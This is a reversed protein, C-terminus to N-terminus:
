SWTQECRWWEAARLAEAFWTQYVGLHYKSREVAATGLDRSDWDTAALLRFIRGVDAMRRIDELGLHPWSRHVVSWYTTLDPSVSKCLFQMLDIAPIGWGATEWDIVLLDTTGLGARVRVNKTVFDGHILTRPMTACWHEVQGWCGELLDCHAILKRLMQRDTAALARRGINARVNDRASRLHDRYHDPGREPLRVSAALRAASTHLVGLWQAAVQRHKPLDPSYRGKGADELLLWCSQGDADEQFGYYRLKSVPIHRLIEEYVTREIVAITRCCRKAIIASGTPGVGALRYAAAKKKDKLVAIWNPQIRHPQFERWVKCAPHELLNVRLIKARDYKRPM